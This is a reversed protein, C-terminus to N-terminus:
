GTRQYNLVVILFIVLGHFFSGAVRDCSLNGPFTDLDQEPLRLFRETGVRLPTVAIDIQCPFDRHSLPDPNVAFEAALEAVVAIREQNRSLIHPHPHVTTSNHYGTMGTIFFCTDTHHSGM